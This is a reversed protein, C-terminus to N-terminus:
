EEEEEKYEEYEDEDVKDKNKIWTKRETLCQERKIEYTPGDASIKTTMKM